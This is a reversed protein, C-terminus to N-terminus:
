TVTCKQLLHYIYKVREKTILRTIHYSEATDFL